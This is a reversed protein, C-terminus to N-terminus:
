EIEIGDTFFTVPGSVNEICYDIWYGDNPNTYKSEFDEVFKQMDKMTKFKKIRQTSDLVYILLHYAETKSNKKKTM